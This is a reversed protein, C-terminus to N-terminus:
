RSRIEKLRLRGDPGPPVVLASDYAWILPDAHLPILLANEAVREKLLRMAETRDPSGEDKSVLEDLLEDIGPHVVGSPNFLGSGARHRESGLFHALTTYADLNFPSIGIMFVQSNGSLADQFIQSLPATRVYAKLGARALMGSVATCIQEDAVYRDNPCDLQLSVEGDHGAEALLQRARDFDSTLRPPPQLRHGTVGPAAIGGLPETRAELLTEVIAQRDIAADIARRVNPDSVLSDDHNFALFLGTTGAAAHTAFDEEGELRELATLPVPTAIDIQGALLATLRTFENAIWQYRVREFEPAEGQWNENRELILTHDAEVSVIRYPGSGMSSALEPMAQDASLTEPLGMELAWDRSLVLVGSLSEVLLPDPQTLTVVVDSGRAEISAVARLLPGVSPSNLAREISWAADEATVPSGDAFTAGPRMTLVLKTPSQWSWSEALQPQLELEADRDVLGEYVNRFFSLARVTSLNHPDLRDISMEGGWNLM